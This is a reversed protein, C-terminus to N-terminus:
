CARPRKAAREEELTSALIEVTRQAEEQMQKLLAISQCMDLQEQLERIKKGQAQKDKRLTENEESKEGLEWKLKNIEMTLRGKQGEIRDCLKTKHALAEKLNKIENQYDPIVNLVGQEIGELKVAQSQVGGEIAELKVAHSQVDNGISQVDDKIGKQLEGIGQVEDHVEEMKSNLGDISIQEAMRTKENFEKQLVEEKQAKKLNALSGKLSESIDGRTLQFGSKTQLDTIRTFAIAAGKGKDNGFTMVNVGKAGHEQLCREVEVDEVQETFELLIECCGVARDLYAIMFQVPVESKKGQRIFTFGQVLEYSFDFCHVFFRKAKVGAVQSFVFNKPNKM